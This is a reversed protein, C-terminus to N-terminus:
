ALPVTFRITTGKGIESHIDIEGGHEKIIHRCIYLGLGTGTNQGTSSKENEASTYYRDFAHAVQEADMGNGTDAVELVAYKSEKLVKVTITGNQTHKAANSILNVLVQMIRNPDCLIEITGGPPEFVLKNRNKSFVPYYTSLTMQIIKTVDCSCVAIVLRNEEIRTVDLIQSVMLSLREAESKILKMHHSLEEEGPQDKIGKETLQAYSSIVTLPTKLEHSVNGLFETKLRNIEELATLRTHRENLETIYEIISCVTIVIMIAVSILQNLQYFHLSTGASFPLSLEIYMIRDIFYFALTTIGYIGCLVLFVGGSYKLYRDSKGETFLLIVAFMLVAFGFIGPWSQGIIIFDKTYFKQFLIASVTIFHVGAGATLVFRVERRMKLALFILLLDGACYFSFSFFLQQIDYFLFTSSFSTYSTKSIMFILAYFIPLLLSFAKQGAMVQRIFLITLIILVAAIMGGLIGNPGYEMVALVGYAEDTTIVPVIPSWYLAQEATLYEIVTLEQGLYDPPLSVSINRGASHRYESIGAPPADLSGKEDPFDTYILDDDLFVVFPIGSNGSLMLTASEVSFDLKVSFGFRHREPVTGAIDEESSSEDKTAEDSGGTVSLSMLKPICGVATELGNNEGDGPEDNGADFGGFASERAEDLFDSGSVTEMYGYENYIGELEHRVNNDDWEYYVIGSEATHTFLREPISNSNFQAFISFLGLLVILSLAVVLITRLLWTKRNKTELNPNYKRM